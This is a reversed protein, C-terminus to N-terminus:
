VDLINRFLLRRKEEAAKLNLLLSNELADQVEAHYASYEPHVGCLTAQGDGVICKVIAAPHGEIDAYRAIVSVSSYEEVSKFLCGGNYYASVESQSLAMGATIKGLLNPFNEFSNVGGRRFAYKSVYVQPPIATCDDFFERLDEFPCLPFPESLSLTAMQAGRLSYYCFKGPGYAPGSAVGPFFQLERRGTVELPHGLEFEVVASGYYGGACIGLFKGGELVFNRISDNPRGRLAHHYPIDRGGPFILLETEKHWQDNSFISKDVCSILYKQDYKEQQLSFILSSVSQPCVGAGKYILIKKM